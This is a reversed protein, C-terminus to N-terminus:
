RAASANKTSALTGVLYQLYWGFKGKSYRVNGSIPQTTTALPDSPRLLTNAQCPLELLWQRTWPLMTDRPNTRLTAAAWKRGGATGVAGYWGGRDIVAVAVHSRPERGAATGSMGPVTQAARAGSRPLMGSPARLSPAHAPPKDTVSRKLIYVLRNFFEVIFWPGQM